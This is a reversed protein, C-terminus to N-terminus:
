RLAAVYQGPTIGYCRKFVRVLHSQDYFGAALAAEAPADGAALRERARKLRLQTLYAHPPLGLAQRFCRLFHFPSLGALAALRDLTWDAAPDARLAELAAGVPHPRARPEAPGQGAHRALLRGLALLFLSDQALRGHRAKLARHAAVLLDATAPDRLVVDRFWSEALSGRGLQEALRTLAEAELYFGRYCWGTPDAVGGEHAEGPNFVWITQPTGFDRLGRTIFRGAGRETVAIVLEEHRHRAFRLTEFRAELLSVGPVHPAIWYDARNHPDLRAM